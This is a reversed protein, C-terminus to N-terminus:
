SKRRFLNRLPNLGTSETAKSHTLEILANQASKDGPAVQLAQRLQSEARKLMGSEKYLLALGVYHSPNFQELKIAELLHEEAERRWKPNKILSMALWYRYRANRPELRVSQRFAEIASWYDQHDFHGRGQRYNLEALKQISAEKVSSAQAPTSKEEGGGAERLIRADYSARTAPVKLTDFAQTLVSFITGLSKKLEGTDSRFYHDPHYKKALAYYARKIEDPSANFPVGLLDYYNKSKTSELMALTDTRLTEVDEEADENQNVSPDPSSGSAPHPPCPKFTKPEIRPLIEKV